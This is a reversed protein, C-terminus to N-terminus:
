SFCDSTMNIKNKGVLKEVSSIVQMMFEYQFSETNVAVRSSLGVADLLTLRIQVPVLKARAM